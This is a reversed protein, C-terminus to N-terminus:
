ILVNAIPGSATALVFGGLVWGLSGMSEGGEGRRHRLMMMGSVGLLGGVGVASVLWFGWNLITLVGATGPPQAGVPTPAAAWAPSGALLGGLPITVAAAFRQQWRRRRSPREARDPRASSAAAILGPASTPASM